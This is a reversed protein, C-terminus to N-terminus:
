QCNHRVYVLTESLVPIKGEKSWGKLTCIILFFVARFIDNRPLNEKALSGIELFNM